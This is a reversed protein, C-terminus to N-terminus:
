FEIKVPTNQTRFAFARQGSQTRRGWVLCPIGRSKLQLAIHPDYTLRMDPLKGYQRPNFRKREYPYKKKIELTTLSHGYVDYILEKNQSLLEIM